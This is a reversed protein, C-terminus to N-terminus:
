AANQASTHRDLSERFMEEVPANMIADIKWRLPTFDPIETPQPSSTEPEPTPDPAPEPEPEPAAATKQSEFGIESKKREKQAKLLETRAHFFGRESSQHYRILVGLDPHTEGLPISANLVCGQIRYARLSLWQNQAMKEVLMQEDFNAPQFHGRLEALLQHFEEREEFPIFVLSSTLGHSLHNRCSRAKGDETRPGTSKKANARNALIQAQTAM